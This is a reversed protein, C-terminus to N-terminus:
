FASAHSLWTITAIRFHLRLGCGATALVNKFGCYACIMRWPGSVSIIPTVCLKGVIAANSQTAILFLNHLRIGHSRSKAIKMLLSTLISSPSCMTVFCNTRLTLGVAVASKAVIGTQHLGLAKQLDLRSQLQTMTMVLDKVQHEVRATAAPKLAPLDLPLPHRFMPVM